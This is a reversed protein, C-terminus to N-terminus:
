CCENAFAKWVPMAMVSAVVRTRYLVISNDALYFAIRGIKTKKNQSWVIPVFVAIVVVLVAFFLSQAM